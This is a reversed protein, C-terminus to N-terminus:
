SVLKALNLNAENLRTGRYNNDSAPVRTFSIEDDTRIKKKKKSDWEDEIGCQLLSTYIMM